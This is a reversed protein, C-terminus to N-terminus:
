EKKPNFYEKMHYYEFDPDYRSRIYNFFTDIRRDLDCIRSSLVEILEEPSCLNWDEANKSDGGFKLVILPLPSQDPDIGLIHFAQRRADNVDKDRHEFFNEPATAVMKGAYLMTRKM